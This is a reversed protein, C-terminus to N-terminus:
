DEDMYWGELKRRLLANARKLRRKVASESIGLAQATEKLKMAQYYRLLVTERERAPLQMVALLVTRDPFADSSAPEPQADLATKRDTHRMWATRLIDRCTNVAIATLWTKEGSEGRFADLRGYAKLFTEQVADEALQRDKLYLTCTRLLATGYAAMLRELAAERSGDTKEM